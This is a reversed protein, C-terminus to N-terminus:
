EVSRTVAEFATIIWDGAQSRFHVAYAERPGRFFTMENPSEDTGPAPRWAGKPVNWQLREAAEVLSPDAVRDAAHTHDGAVLAGIFDVFTAYPSPVRQTDVRVFGAPTWRFRLTSYVHPCTACEVFGRPPRYTRAALMAGTDSPAELEASGFGLSDAGLAQVLKWSGSGAHPLSWSMVLPQLGGAARRQMVAAFTRVSDAPTPQGEHLGRSVAGLLHLNKGEVAQFSPGQPSCWFLFPWSGAEPDSRPFFNVIMACSADAFEAGISLSDLLQGAHEHWSTAPTGRLRRAILRATATAATESGGNEWLAQTQRVEQTASDAVAARTSDPPIVVVDTKRQCGSLAALAALCAVAAALRANM